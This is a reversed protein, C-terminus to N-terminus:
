QSKMDIAVDDIKKSFVNRKKQKTDQKDLGRFEMYIQPMDM